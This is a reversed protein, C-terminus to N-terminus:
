SIVERVADKGVVGTGTGARDADDPGLAATGMPGPQSDMATGAEAGTGTGAGATAERARAGAGTETRDTDDPRPAAAGMPGPQSGVAAGTEAGTGTGAGASSGMARAGDGAATRDADGPRLAATGMPGPQSGVAAGTGAAAERARVGAGAGSEAGRAGDLPVEAVVRFVGAGAFGAELTGDVRRLRERLGALGSGGTGEASATGRAAETGGTTRTGGAAEVAGTGGAGKTGSVGRAGKGGSAGGAGKGGSGGDAGREAGDNEVTLVVRGETVRLGVSCHGADGHRLVNTTAERVVWGLASQVGAPLGGAEGRVECAIGAATLVGQAGALEVGLDAERYGRVVERVERQSEQAIRQVEIMQEVAEPRGRRALQVALESKLAIVALNRGMVDHLDRGFRLREEAVALRAEVEGAREAEWLVSLNWASCRCAFLSFCAGFATIVGIMVIGGLHPDTWGFLAMVVVALEASRRLFLRVPVLLGYLMGFCLLVTGASLRVTVPDTGDLAALVLALALGAATLAASPILARMPFESRKLYHDLVPRTLRNAAVCQLAAVLLLLGGVIMPAPRRELGGLLPLALWAFPFFWTTVYWTIVTQLEVREAKSRDKWHRRQWGRIRGLM